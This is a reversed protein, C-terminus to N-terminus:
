TPTLFLFSFFCCMTQIERCPRTRLCGERHQKQKRCTSVVNNKDALIGRGGPELCTMSLVRLKNWPCKHQQLAASLYAKGRHQTLYDPTKKKWKLDHSASSLTSVLLSTWNCHFSTMGPLHEHFGHMKYDNSTVQHCYWCQIVTLITNQYHWNCTIKLQCKRWSTHNTCHSYLKKDTLGLNLKGSWEM